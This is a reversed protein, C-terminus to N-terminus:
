NAKQLEMISFWEDQAHYWRVLQLGAAQVLALASEKSYKQSIETHISEGEAFEFEMDLHKVRARLPRQAVLHMEVREAELNFFAKHAFDELVFDAELQRNLVTLVNKNFAATVGAQDNYAAHLVSAPKVRDVSLLFRDEQTLDATVRRLFDRAEDFEFNGISSGFLIMMLPRSQKLGILNGTFDAIHGHIALDPFRRQLAQSSVRIAEQSVDIPLYRLRQRQASDTAELLRQIKWHAGSGLEVLDGEQFGQMLDEAISELLELETRTVYYEPTKCIEEFLQSGQDDYFYKSPIRKQKALLGRRIDEKLEQSFDLHLHNELTIPQNFLNM